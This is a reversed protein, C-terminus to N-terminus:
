ATRKARARTTPDSMRSVVVGVCSDSANSRMSEGSERTPRGPWSIAMTKESMIRKTGVSASSAEAMM